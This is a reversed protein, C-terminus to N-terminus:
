GFLNDVQNDLGLITDFVQDNADVTKAQSNTNSATTPISRVAKMQKLMDGKTSKAVNSMYLDKNKLLYIDEFGIQHKNAWDMMDNFDTDSIGSKQKFAEAQKDREAKQMSQQTAQKEATLKSDVRSSVARDIMTSFVKSSDSNPNSVAEDIDFVFDEPLSLEEKLEKPKQGNQVYDRITNVLGEDNQLAEIYPKFRGFEDLEQKMKQAERSSDSYRKKWDTDEKQPAEEIETFLPNEKQPEESVQQNEQPEEDDRIAGNVERDLDDFFGEASGFVSDEVADQTVAQQDESM